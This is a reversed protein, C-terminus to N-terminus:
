SLRGVVTSKLTQQQRSTRGSACYEHVFQRCETEHLGVPNIAGRDCVGRDCLEVAPQSALTAVMTPHETSLMNQISEVVMNGVWTCGIM